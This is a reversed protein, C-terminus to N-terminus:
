FFGGKEIVQQLADVGAIELPQVVEAEVELGVEGAQLVVQDLDLPLLHLAAVLSADDLLLGDALADLYHQIQQKLARMLGLVDVPDELHIHVQLPAQHHLQLPHVM